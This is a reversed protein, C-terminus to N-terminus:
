FRTEWEWVLRSIEPLVVQAESERIGDTMICLVYARPAYVIGCDNWVQIQNGIKHAVRIGNPVGASIRDEFETGTLTDFFFEKLDSTLIKDHYILGFLNGMDQPSSKNGILVTNSMQWVDIYSQITTKGVDNVIANVSTNDSEQGIFTILEKYSFETGPSAYQLHGTGDEKDLSRLRYVSDLDARGAEVEELFSVVIPVKNVSAATFVFDYNRGYYNGTVMSQVYWGYKGMKSDTIGDIRSILDDVSDIEKEILFLAPDIGDSDSLVDVEAVPRDVSESEYVIPSLIASSRAFVWRAGRYGFMLIAVICFLVGLPKLYSGFSFLSFPASRSQGLLQRQGYDRM